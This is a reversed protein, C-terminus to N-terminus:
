RRDLRLPKLRRLAPLMRVLVDDRRVLHHHLAAAVHLSILALLCLSFVSHIELIDRALRRNPVVLSSVPFCFLSVDGRLLSGAIGLIPQSVLGVYLATETCKAALRQWHPLDGPWEPLRSRSRVAIRLLTLLFITVGASRHLMLLWAALDETSASERSWALAYAAAILAVTTWHVARIALSHDTNRVVDPM